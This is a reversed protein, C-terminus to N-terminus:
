TRGCGACVPSCLKGAPSAQLPVRRAGRLAAQQSLGLLDFRERGLGLCSARPQMRRAPHLHAPLSSTIVMLASSPPSM